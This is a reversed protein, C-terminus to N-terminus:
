LSPLIGAGGKGQLVEPVMSAEMPTYRYPITIKGEEEAKFADIFINGKLNWAIADKQRFPYNVGKNFYCGEVLMECGKRANAAASNGACDYLCNLVHITGLRALPM